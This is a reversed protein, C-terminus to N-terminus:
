FKHYVGNFLLLPINGLDIIDKNSVPQLKSYDYNIKKLVEIIKENKENKGNVFLYQNDYVIHFAFPIIETGEIYSTENLNSYKVFFDNLPTREEIEKHEILLLDIEHKTLIMDELDTIDVIKM